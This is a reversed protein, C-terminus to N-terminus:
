RLLWMKENFDDNGGYQSQIAKTLNETNYNVESDPYMWRVPIKDAQTNNNSAPNVPFVPYGTRRNEFFSDFSAQLFTGLYRQTMIKELQQAFTGALKVKDTALYGEIYENTIKRNNHFMENDPTYTAV